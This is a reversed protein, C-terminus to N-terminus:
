NTQRSQNDQSCRPTDAEQNTTNHADLLIWRWTMTVLISKCDSCKCKKKRLEYMCPDCLFGYGKVSVEELDLDLPFNTQVSCHDCTKYDGTERTEKLTSSEATKSRNLDDKFKTEGSTSKNFVLKKSSQSKVKKAPSITKPSCLKTSSFSKVLSSTPSDSVINGVDRLPVKLCSKEKEPELQKTRHTKASSSVKQDTKKNSSYTYFHYDEDDENEVNDDNKEDNLSKKEVSGEKWSFSKNKQCSLVYRKPSRLSDDPTCLSDDIKELLGPKRKNIMQRDLQKSTSPSHFSIESNELYQIDQKMEDNDDHLEDDEEDDSEEEGIEEEDSYDINGCLTAVELANEAQCGLYKRYRESRKIHNKTSVKEPISAHQEFEEITLATDDDEINEYKAYFDAWMTKREQIIEPPLGDTLDAETILEQLRSELSMKFFLSSRIESL